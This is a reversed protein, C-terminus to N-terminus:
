CGSDTNGAEELIYHRDAVDRAAPCHLSIEVAAATVRMRVELRQGNVSGGLTAVDACVAEVLAMLEEEAREGAAPEGGGVEILESAFSSVLGSSRASCPLDIAIEQGILREHMAYELTPATVRGMPFMGRIGPTYGMGV